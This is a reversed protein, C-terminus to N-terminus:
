EPSFHQLAIDRMRRLDLKGSGLVPIEDVQLFCDEDPLYLKPLGMESLKQLITAPPCPLGTHLVVLREGKRPDPVATVAVRLKGEEDTGIIRSIAEEIQIHPVMEGGIKSFRSLRGTIYLFGDEDIYGVDGTRYWDDHMVERTLDPRKFYGKMVNPGRVEILGTEGPPLPEDTDISVARVEVGPIPKGVSGERLGAEVPGSARSPPINVAVVPSLETTGYGEVPRVGYKQEFQEALDLPMKEAGLVVVDLTQFQEPDIRRLYTRLFTPTALLVTAKYKAALNGIPRADLPSFHYAAACPLCMATWLTVTYGFSHFFPLVGLVTDRADLKICKEIGDINCAINGHSLMVGKPVGTSGSTFIITLLDDSSLQDLGLRRHLSEASFAHAFFWAWAKDMLGIRPRVDELLLTPAGPDLQVKDLFRRSTIVHKLEATQSCQALIENSTTYNLNVAVRGALAIALNVAVAPVTPPLFIGVQREDDSLVERLLYRRLALTRVLLDIASLEVGTSDAAKFRTGGAKLQRLLRLTVVSEGPTYPNM